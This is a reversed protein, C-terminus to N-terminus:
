EALRRATEDVIRKTLADVDVTGSVVGGARLEALTAVVHSKVIDAWAWGNADREAYLAHLAAVQEDSRKMAAAMDATRNNIDVVANKVLQQEYDSLAMLFGEELDLPRSETGAPVAGIAGLSGWYTWHWPEDFNAGEWTINHRRALQQARRHSPTVSNYPYALDAARRKEHNSTMPVGVTGGGKVRKWWGHGPWYRRDGYPGKDSPGSSPVYKDRFIKEQADTERDGSVIGIEAHGERVLDASLGAFAARTGEALQYSGNLYRTM